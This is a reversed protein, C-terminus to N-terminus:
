CHGDFCNVESFRAQPTHTTFMPNVAQDIVM